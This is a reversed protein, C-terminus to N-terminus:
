AEPNRRHVGDHGCFWISLTQLGGQDIPASCEPSYSMLSRVGSLAGAWSPWHSSRLEGDM